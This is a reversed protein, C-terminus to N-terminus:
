GRIVHHDRERSYKIVLMSHFTDMEFVCLKHEWSYLPVFFKTAPQLFYVLNLFKGKKSIMQFIVREKLVEGFGYM